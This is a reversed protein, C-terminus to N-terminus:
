GQRHDDTRRLNISIYIISGIFLLIIFPHWFMLLVDVITNSSHFILKKGFVVPYEIAEPTVEDWHVLIYLNLIASVVFSAIAYKLKKM